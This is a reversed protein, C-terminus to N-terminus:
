EPLYNICDRLDPNDTNMLRAIMIIWLPVVTFVFRKMDYILLWSARVREFLASDWYECVRRVTVRPKFPRPMVLSSKKYARRQPNSV